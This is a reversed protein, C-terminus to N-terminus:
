REERSKEERKTGKEIKKYGNLGILATKKHMFTLLPNPQFM